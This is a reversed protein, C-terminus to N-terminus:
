SVDEVDLDTKIAIKRIIALHEKAMQLIEPKSKVLDNAAKKIDKGKFTVLKMGQQRISLKVIDAAIRRAQTLEVMTPKTM